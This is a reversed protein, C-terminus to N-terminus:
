VGADILRAIHPHDLAALVDRERAFREALVGSGHSAKPLKIAVQRKLQGDAREALWVTAMGGQGLLRLLRYGAVRQGGRPLADAPPSPAEGLVRTRDEDRLLDQVRSHLAPDTRGLEALEDDREAASAGLLRGLLVLARADLDLSPAAGPNM